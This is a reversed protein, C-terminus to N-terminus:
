APQAPLAPSPEALLRGLEEFRAPVRMMRTAFLRCAPARLLRPLSGELAMSWRVRTGDEDPSLEGTVMLRLGHGSLRVTYYDFPRWDLVEEIFNSNACHNHSGVGQRGGPRLRVSWDAGVEWRNRLAPDNLLAWLTAAPAAFRREITYHANAADLYAVRDATLEAYRGRLDLASVPWEGLHPYSLRHLRLGEPRVGMFTLAPDTFLAYAPWGTAEVIDNKLLRHAVNVSTGFPKPRGSFDQLVWEGHHAVFKLDLGPIAMCAECPCTANRHMMRVRDRFAVYTDELLELLTEGRAIRESPAYLFLADGEVEALELLPTLRSRLVGLLNALIVPAHDLETRAVFSTFGSLDALVLYGTQIM